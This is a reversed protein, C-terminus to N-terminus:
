ENIKIYAHKVKRKGVLLFLTSLSVKALIPTTEVDRQYPTLYFMSQIQQRGDEQFIEIVTGNLQLEYTTGELSEIVEAVVTPNNHDWAVVALLRDLGIQQM